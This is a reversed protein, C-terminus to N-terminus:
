GGPTPQPQGGVNGAAQMENLLFDQHEKQKALFLQKINEPLLKYQSSKMFEQLKALMITHNDWNQPEVYIGKLMEQIASKAANEDISHYIGELNGFEMLEMGKQPTIYKKDMWREIMAQREIKSTPMATGLSIKIRRNGQLQEGKFTNVDAGLTDGTISLIRPESYKAQMIDLVTEAFFALQQEIGLVVPAIQSNDVENLGEIAAGSRIQAQQFKTSDHVASVDEMDRRIRILEEMLFSPPNPPTTFEPKGGTPDYKIIQGVEDDYKAEVKCNKPMLLKGAFWKKYEALRTITFNYEEQLSILQEVMGQPFSSMMLDLYDFGFYPLRVKYEPPIGEDLILKNNTTIVYRGQPYKTSAIEWMEYVRASDEYKESSQTTEILNHLQQEIESMGIDEPEIEVGYQQNIADVSMVNQEIVFRKAPDVLVDLISLVKTEVEGIQGEVVQDNLYAKSIASPNFYPKLYGKGVALLFSFLRRLVLIMGGSNQMLYPNKKNVEQWFDELVEQSVRATSIDRESNTTPEVNIQSKMMLMRALLSRYLPLIYNAVRRTKKKRELNKIEWYIRDELGSIPRKDVAFYHKGYLFAINILWQKEQASRGESIKKKRDLVLQIVQKEEPIIISPKDEEVRYNGPM